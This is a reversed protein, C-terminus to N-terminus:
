ASAKEVLMRWMDRALRAIYLLPGSRMSQNQPHVLASYAEHASRHDDMHREHEAEDGVPIRSPTTITLDSARKSQERPMRAVLLAIRGGAALPVVASTPEMVRSVTAATPKRAGETHAETQYLFVSWRLPLRTRSLPRQSKSEQLRHRPFKRYWTQPM